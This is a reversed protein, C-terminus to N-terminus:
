WTIDGQGWTRYQRTTEVMVKVNEVKAEDLPCSSRMIFGGDDGIFEVLRARCGRDLEAKQPYLDENSEPMPCM